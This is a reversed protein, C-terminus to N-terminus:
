GRDTGRLRSDAPAQSHKGVTNIETVLGIIDALEGRAM